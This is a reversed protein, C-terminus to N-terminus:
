YRTVPVYGIGKIMEQGQPSLYLSIIQQEHSGLEPYGDTVMFLPRAIPYKGSGVTKMSPQVGGISVTKVSDDVYGLGIYAIAGPTESVRAKAAANSGVYEAGKVKDGKLVLEGFVEFTGSTSERSVVVVERDPGGVESWNEIEGNYIKRVQKMTLESVPNSPHLAIAIGDMAVTHFIPLVENKVASEFERPKMMRSMNAIDCRDNILAKAGNGSGTLSVSVEVDPNKEMYHGAFAKAIPGVTTSGNMVVKNEEAQAVSGTTLVAAMLFAVVISVFGRLGASTRHLM